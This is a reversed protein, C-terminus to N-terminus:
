HDSPMVVILPKQMWMMLSYRLRRDRHPSLGMCLRETEYGAKRTRRWETLVDQKDRAM